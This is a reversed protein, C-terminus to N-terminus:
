CCWRPLFLINYHGTFVWGTVLVPLGFLAALGFNPWAGGQLLKTSL